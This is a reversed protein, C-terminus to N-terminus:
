LSRRPRGPPGHHGASCGTVHLLHASASCDATGCYCVFPSDPPVQAAVKACTERQHKGGHHHRLYNDKRANEYRCACRYCANHEGHVTTSHRKLDNSKKFARECFTVPCRHLHEASSHTPTPSSPRPSSGEGALDPPTQAAHPPNPPPFEGGGVYTEWPRVISQSDQGLPLPWFTDQPWNYVGYAGPSSFVLQQVLLQRPDFTNIDIVHQSGDDGVIASPFDPLTAYPSVQHERPPDTNDFHLNIELDDDFTIDWPYYDAM